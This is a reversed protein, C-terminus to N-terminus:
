QLEKIIKKQPIFKLPQTLFMLLWETVILKQEKLLNLILFLKQGSISKKEQLKLLLLKLTITKKKTKDAM